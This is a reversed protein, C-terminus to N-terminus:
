PEFEQVKPHNSISVLYPGLHIGVWKYPHEWTWVVGLLWRRYDPTVFVKM